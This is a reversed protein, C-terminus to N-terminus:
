AASGGATFCRTLRWQSLNPVWLTPLDTRDAVHVDIKDERDHEGGHHDQM